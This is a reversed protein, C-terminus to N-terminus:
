IKLIIKLTKIEEVVINRMSKNFQFKARLKYWQPVKQLEQEAFEPFLKEDKNYEDTLKDREEATLDQVSGKRVTSTLFRKRSDQKMTEVRERANRDAAARVKLYKAEIEKQKEHWHPLIRHSLYKIRYFAEKPDNWTHDADMVARVHCHKMDYYYDIVDDTDIPFAESSGRMDERAKCLRELSEQVNVKNLEGNKQDVENGIFALFVRELLRAGNKDFDPFNTHFDAIWVALDQIKKEAVIFAIFNLTDVYELRPMGLRELNSQFTEVYKKASELTAQAEKKSLVSKTPKLIKEITDKDLKFEHKKRTFVPFHNFRSLQFRLQEKKTDNWGKPLTDDFGIRLEHSLVEHNDELDPSYHPQGLYGYHLPLEVPKGYTVRTLDEFLPTVFPVIKLAERNDDTLHFRGRPYLKKPPVEPTSSLPAGCPNVPQM